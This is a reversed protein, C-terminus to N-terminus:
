DRKDEKGETKSGLINGVRRIDITAEDINVKYQVFLNENNNHKELSESEITATEEEINIDLNTSNEISEEQTTAEDDFQQNNKEIAHITQESAQTEENLDVVVTNTNIRSAEYVM